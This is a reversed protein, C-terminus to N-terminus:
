ASMAVCAYFRVVDGKVGLGGGDDSSWFETVVGDQCGDLLSALLDVASLRVSLDLAHINRLFLNCCHSSYSQLHPLPPYIANPILSLFLRPPFIQTHQKLSSSAQSPILFPLSTSIFATFYRIVCHCHMSNLVRHIAASTARPRTSM